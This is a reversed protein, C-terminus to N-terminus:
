LNLIQLAMTDILLKSDVSCEHVNNFLADFTESLGNSLGYMRSLKRYRITLTVLICFNEIWCHNFGRRGDSCHGILKSYGPDVHEGQEIENRFLNCYSSYWRKM